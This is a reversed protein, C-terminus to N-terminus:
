NTFAQKDGKVEKVFVYNVIKNKSCLYIFTTVHYGKVRGLAELYNFWDLWEIKFKLILWLLM